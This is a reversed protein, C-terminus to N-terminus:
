LSLRHPLSRLHHTTAPARAARRRSRRAATREWAAFRGSVGSFPRWSHRFAIGVFLSLDDDVSEAEVAERDFLM